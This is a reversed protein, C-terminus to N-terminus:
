IALSLKFAQVSTISVALSQRIKLPVFPRAVPRKQAAQYACFYLSVTSLKIKVLCYGGRSAMLDNFFAVVIM